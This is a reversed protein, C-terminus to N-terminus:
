TVLKLCFNCNLIIFMSCTTIKAKQTFVVKIKIDHKTVLKTVQAIGQFTSCLRWRTTFLERVYVIKEWFTQNSRSIKEFLFM